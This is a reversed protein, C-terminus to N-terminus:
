IQIFFCDQLYEIPKGNYLLSFDGDYESLSTSEDIIGLVNSASKIM